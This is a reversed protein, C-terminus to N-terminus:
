CYAARSSASRLVPFSGITIEFTWVLQPHVVGSHLLSGIAGPPVAFTLTPYLAAPSPWKSFVIVIMYLWFKDFCTLIVPVTHFAGTPEAGSFEDILKSFCFFM